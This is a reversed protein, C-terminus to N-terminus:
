PVEAEETQGTSGAKPHSDMARLVAELFVSVGIEIDEPEVYEEPHHSVGGRCRVFIMGVETLDAMALADHGAGSPIFLPPYGHRTIAEAAAAMLRPSCQVAPTDLVVECCFSLSGNEAIGEARQCIQRFVRRREEDDLSRVDLTGEVRGPIVNSSGPFVQLNGVTAVTSPSKRAAEEVALIIEAAGVLADRRADMPVTGAHGALGEVQFRGRVAGAIGSVVGCPLHENELIPGQEIHLEMYGAIQEPDRKASRFALPDLGFERLAEALTIGRADRANLDEGLLTGAMARSGLLTTHFRAGEEDCFVVVELPLATQFGSEFLAQVVELAAVVGLTGDFAGGEMVSDLHSGILFAPGGRRHHPYHGIINGLADVRVVMGTEKMWRRVLLGAQRFESTFSLRTVGRKGASCHALEKLRHLVREMRIPIEFM